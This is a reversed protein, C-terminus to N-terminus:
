FINKYNELNLYINQNHIDELRKNKGGLKM